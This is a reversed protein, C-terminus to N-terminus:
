SSPVEDLSALLEKALRRRLMRTTGYDASLSMVRKLWIHLQYEWTFGIGGHLQLAHLNALHATDGGYAKAAAARRLADPEAVRDLATLAAAEALDVMVAVDAVKHKVGQFSGVPRDFQKRVGIYDVTLDLLSRSAGALMCAAGAVAIARIRELDEPAVELVARPGTTTVAALPRLPDLSAVDRVDLEERTFAHVSDDSRLDIMLDADRAFAVHPADDMRIAVIADGGAIRELWAPAEQWSSAGLVSAAIVATELFPEPVAHRGFAHLTTSLHAPTLAIGGQEEPVLASLIGAEALRAWLAPSHATGDDLRARLHDVTCARALLEESLDLLEQREADLSATAQTM